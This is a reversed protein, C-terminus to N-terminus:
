DEVIEVELEVRIPVSTGIESRKIVVPITIVIANTDAAAGVNASLAVPPPPPPAKAAPKPAPKKVAPSKPLKPPPEKKAKTAKKPEAKKKKQFPDTIFEGSAPPPQSTDSTSDFNIVNGVESDIIQADTGSTPKPTVKPPEPSPASPDVERLAADIVGEVEDEGDAPGDAMATVPTTSAAKRAATEAPAPPPTQASAQAAAQAVPSPTTKENGAIREILHNYLISAIGKFTEYIGQGTTATAEFHPVNLLNLKADLEAVSLANPVDRKNYQIVWPITDLTLDYENLNEELNRLSQINEDMKAPDSDAVFVVADAGKLVLKRTANYYVQGPVTYLLIRTRYGSIEGLELPLFDFFLTRDTRTKMSVMKGKANSPMKEYISELNTTKGSLAPGYYVVKANIEAGSYNFVVM